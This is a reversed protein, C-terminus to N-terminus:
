QKLTQYHKNLLDEVKTWKIEPYRQNDLSKLSARNDIMNLMYQMGQWAPYLKDKQPALFRVIKILRALRKPAGLRMLEFPTGTINGLVKKLEKPSINHGAIRLFRPTCDDLAVCATFNATDDMTTFGMEHRAEGWYTIRKKNFAIMPFQDTLMDMFAGNFISTPAIAQADLYKHFERRLDLNRNEGHNFNTFDLSYDSPIFRKVGAAIAADLLKTQTKIVVEELGSLASVVCHADICIESLTLSDSYSIPHIDVGIAELESIIASNTEKRVLAKVNAGKEILSACIRKGLNGNAGAVIITKVM